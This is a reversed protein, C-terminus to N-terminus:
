CPVQFSTGPFPSEKQFADNEPEMNFKAPIFWESIFFNIWLFLINFPSTESLHLANPDVMDIM